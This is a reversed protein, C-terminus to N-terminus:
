YVSKAWRPANENLTDSSHAHGYHPKEGEDDDEFDEEEEEECEVEEEEEDEEEQEEECEAEEEEEEEEMECEEQEGEEEQEVEDESGSDENLNLNEIHPDGNSGAADDDSVDSQAEGGACPPFAPGDLDCNSDVQVQHFGEDVMACRIEEPSMLPNMQLVRTLCKTFQGGDVSGSTTTHDPAATISVVDALINSNDLDALTGSHCSDSLLTFRCGEPLQELIDKFDNDMIKKGDETAIFEDFGDLEDGGVDEEKQGGHGSFYFILHDGPQAHEAMDMLHTMIQFKTAPGQTDQNPDQTLLTVNTPDAGLYHLGFTAIRAADIGSGAVANDNADYAGVTLIKTTM